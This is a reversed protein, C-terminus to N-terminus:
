PCVSSPEIIGALKHIQSCRQREVPANTQKMGISFFPDKPLVADFSVDAFIPSYFITFPAPPINLFELGKALEFSELVVDCGQALNGKLPSPDFSGELCVAGTHMDAFLVVSYLGKVADHEFHVGYHAPTVFDPIICPVLGTPVDKCTDHDFDTYDLQAKGSIALSRAQTILDLVKEYNNIFVLQSTSGIISQIGVLLLLVTVGMVLLLEILTFGPLKKKNQKQM